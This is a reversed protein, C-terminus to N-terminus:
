LGAGGLCDRRVYRELIHQLFDESLYEKQQGVAATSIAVAMLSTLITKMDPQKHRSRGEARGKGRHKNLEFYTHAM